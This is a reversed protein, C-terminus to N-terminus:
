NMWYNQSFRELPFKFHSYEQTDAMRGVRDHRSILRYKERVTEHSMEKPPEFRDKIIKFVIDYSPLTFVCM